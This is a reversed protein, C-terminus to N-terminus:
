GLTAPNFDLSSGHKKKLATTISECLVCEFSTAEKTGNSVQIEQVGGRSIISAALSLPNIVPAAKPSDTNEM